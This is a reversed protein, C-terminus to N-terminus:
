LCPLLQEGQGGVKWSYPIIWRHFGALPFANEAQEDFIHGQDVTFSDLNMHAESTAGGPTEGEALWQGDSLNPLCLRLDNGLDVAQEILVAIALDSLDQITSTSPGPLVFREAEFLNSM